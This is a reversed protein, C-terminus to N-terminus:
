PKRLRYYRTGTSIPVTVTNEDGVRVASNSVNTWVGGPFVLRDTTELTFGVEASPWAIRVDNGLRTINLRPPVGSVNVTWSQSEHLVQNPDNRVKTTKDQAEVTINHAGNGLAQAAITFVNSTAGGVAAGDIFWQVAINYPIPALTQVQFATSDAGTLSLNTSAPSFSDIPHVQGYISEVLAESCVECFPVGLTRMKCDLKPRYWGTAHYNAGEFLGVVASYPSTQPTPIPTGALIWSTWKIFGRRTEQTTNPQEQSQGSFSSAYEDGLGAFSHGLEHVAIESSSANVSALLARGGSGGYESDNVIIATIDYEPMLSQLLADVKGYGHDYTTDRDNPPITILRATGYSDYTSNFYTNRFLSRSPHDSGSEPSAVSIAFGNFYKKYAAFPPANLIANLVRVADNTFQPLQASTYGESLIVINIRKDTPGNSLLQTLVGQALARPSAFALFLIAAAKAWGRFGSM